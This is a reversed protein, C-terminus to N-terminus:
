LESAYRAPTALGRPLYGIGVGGKGVLLWLHDHAEALVHLDQRFDVKGTTPGDVNFGAYLPSNAAAVYPEAPPAYDPATMVGPALRPSPTQALAAPALAILAFAL